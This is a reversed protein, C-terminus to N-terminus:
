ESRMLERQTPEPVLAIRQLMGRQYASRIVETWKIWDEMFGSPPEKKHLPIEKEREGIKLKGRYNSITSEHLGTQEMIYDTSKGEKLLMMAYQRTEESVYRGM